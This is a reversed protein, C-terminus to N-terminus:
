VDYLVGESGPYREVDFISSWAAAQRAARSL